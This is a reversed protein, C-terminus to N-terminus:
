SAPELVITLFTQRGRQHRFQHRAQRLGSGAPPTVVVSYNGSAPREFRFYGEPGTLVRGAERDGAYLVVEADPVPVQGAAGVTVTARAAGVDTATVVVGGIDDDGPPLGGGIYALLTAGGACGGLALVVLGALGTITVRRRRDTDRLDSM